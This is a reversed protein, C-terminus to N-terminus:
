IILLFISIFFHLLKKKKKPKPEQYIVKNLLYVYILSFIFFKVHVFRYSHTLCFFFFFEILIFPIKKLWFFITLMQYMNPFHNCDWIIDFWCLFLLMSGFYYSLFSFNGSLFYNAVKQFFLWFASFLTGFAKCLQFRLRPM